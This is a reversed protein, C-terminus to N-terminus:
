EAGEAPRRHPCAEEDAPDHILFVDYHMCCRAGGTGGAGGTCGLAEYHACYICQELNLRWTAATSEPSM